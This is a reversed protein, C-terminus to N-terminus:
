PSYSLRISPANGRKKYTGYCGQEASTGDLVYLTRLVGVDNLFLIVLGGHCGKHTSWLSVLLSSILSSLLSSCVTFTFLLCVAMQSRSIM